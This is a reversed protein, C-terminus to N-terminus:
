IMNKHIYVCKCLEQTLTHLFTYLCTHVKIKRYVRDARIRRFVVCLLTFKNGVLSIQLIEM